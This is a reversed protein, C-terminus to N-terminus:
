KRYSYIGTKKGQGALRYPKDWSVKAIDHGFIAQFNTPPNAPVPFPQSSLINAIITNTNEVFLKDTLNQMSTRNQTVCIEQSTTEGNTWFLSGNAFAM